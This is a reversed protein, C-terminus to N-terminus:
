TKGSKDEKKEELYGRTEKEVYECFAKKDYFLGWVKELKTWRTLKGDHVDMLVLTPRSIKYAKTYRQNKKDQYDIMYLKVRGTKMQGAFRTKLAEEIYASITKCTPCRKTRHFYCALVQHPLPKKAKARAGDPKGGESLAGPLLVVTGVIAAVFLTLVYSRRM